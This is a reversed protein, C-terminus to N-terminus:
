RRTGSTMFHSSPSPRCKQCNKLIVRRVVCTEGGKLLSYYVEWYERLSVVQLETSMRRVNLFASLDIMNRTGLFHFIDFVWLIHCAIIRGNESPSLIQFTLSSSYFHYFVWKTNSLHLFPTYNASPPSSPPPPSISFRNAITSPRWKDSSDPSFAWRVRTDM